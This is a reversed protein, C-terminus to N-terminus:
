PKSDGSSDGDITKLIDVALIYGGAKAKELLAKAKKKDKKVGTGRAYALGAEYQGEPEGAAAAKEFWRFAEEDDAPQEEAGIKYRRAMILMAKGSGTDAAKKYWKEKDVSSIGQMEAMRLAAKGSGAEAVFRYQREIMEPHTKGYTKEIKKVISFLAEPTKGAYSKADTGANDAKLGIMMMTAEASGQAAAKSFLAAAKDPSKEMSAHALRTLTETKMRGQAKQSWSLAKNMDKATGTGEEYAAGVYEIANNNGAEAAQIMVAFVDEASRQQPGPQSWFKALEEAAKVNGKEMATRYHPEPDRPSDFYHGYLAYLRALMLSKKGGIDDAFIQQRLIKEAQAAYRSADGTSQRQDALELLNINASASTDSLSLSLREIDASRSPDQRKYIEVLDLRAPMHGAAAAQEIYSQEDRGQERAIMALNYAAQGQIEPHPSNLAQQYAAAAESLNGNGTIITDGAKIFEGGMKTFVPTECASLVLVLCLVFVQNLPYTHIHKKM